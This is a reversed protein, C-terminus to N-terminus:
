SEGRGEREEEEGERRRAAVHWGNSEREREGKAEGGEWGTVQVQM